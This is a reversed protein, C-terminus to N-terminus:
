VSPAARNADPRVTAWKRRRILSTRTPWAAAASARAPTGTASASPKLTCASDIDALSRSRHAAGGLQRALRPLGVHRDGEVEVAAGRLPDGGPDAEEVVHELQQRAM